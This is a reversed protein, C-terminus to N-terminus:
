EQKKIICGNEELADEIIWRLIEENDVPYPTRDILKIPSQLKFSYEEDLRRWQALFILTVILGIVFVGIKGETTLKNM